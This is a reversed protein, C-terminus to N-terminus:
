KDYFLDDVGKLIEKMKWLHTYVISLSQVM